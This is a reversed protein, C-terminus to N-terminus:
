GARELVRKIAMPSWRAGRPTELGRANLAAAIERLSRAGGAKAERIVPLVNRARREAEAV